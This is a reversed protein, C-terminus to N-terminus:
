ELLICSSFRLRLFWQKCRRRRLFLNSRIGGRDVLGVSQDIIITTPWPEPCSSPRRVLIVSTDLGGSYATGFFGEDASGTCEFPLM